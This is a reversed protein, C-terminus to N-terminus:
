EFLRGPYTIGPPALTPCRCRREYRIDLYSIDFYISLDNLIIYLALIFLRQFFMIKPLILFNKGGVVNKLVLFCLM